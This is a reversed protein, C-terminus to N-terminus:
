ADALAAAYKRIRRRGFLGLASLGSAFLPLAPPLPTAAAAVYGSPDPVCDPCGIDVAFVYGENNAVFSAASLSSLSTLVFTFASLTDCQYNCSIESAWSGTSDVSGPSSVLSFPNHTGIMTANSISLSPNGSVDFLLAVGPSDAFGVFHEPSSGPPNGGNPALTVTVSVADTGDQELDVTGWPGPGCGLGGAGCSVNTGLTTASASVPMAIVAALLLAPITTPLTLGMVRLNYIGM